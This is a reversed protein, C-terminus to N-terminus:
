NEKINNKISFNFETFPFKLFIFISPNLDWLKFFIFAFIDIPKKKM